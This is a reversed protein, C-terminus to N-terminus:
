LKAADEQLQQIAHLLTLEFVTDVAIMSPDYMVVFSDDSELEIEFVARGDVTTVHDIREPRADTRRFVTYAIRRARAVPDDDVADADSHSM